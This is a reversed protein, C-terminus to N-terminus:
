ILAVACTVIPCRLFQRHDATRFSRKVAEQKPSIRLATLLPWNTYQQYGVHKVPWNSVDHLLQKGKAFMESWTESASELQM